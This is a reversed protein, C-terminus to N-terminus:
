DRAYSCHLKCLVIFKLSRTVYIRGQEPLKGKSIVNVSHLSITSPRPPLKVSYGLYLKVSIKGM